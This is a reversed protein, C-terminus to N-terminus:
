ARVPVGPRRQLPPLRLTGGGERIGHVMRLEGLHRADETRLVGCADLLLAFPVAPAGTIGARPRRRRSGAM